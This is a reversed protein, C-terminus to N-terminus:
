NVYFSFYVLLDTRFYFNNKLTILNKCAAVKNGDITVFGTVGATNDSFVNQLRSIDRLFIQISLLNM